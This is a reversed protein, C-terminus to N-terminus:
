VVKSQHITLQACIRTLYIIFDFLLVVIHYTITIHHTYCRERVAGVVGVEKSITYISYIRRAIVLLNYNTRQLGFTSYM